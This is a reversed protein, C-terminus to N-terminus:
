FYHISLSRNPIITFFLKVFIFINLDSDQEFDETIGGASKFSFVLCKILCGLDKLRGLRM